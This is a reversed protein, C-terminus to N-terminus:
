FVDMVAIQGGFVEGLGAPKFIGRISFDKRGQSTFLPLKDGEKLNHKDAFTRSILISDPQALAVLPDGIESGSEDFQYERLEGDGLMDVGVILLNGEDEFATHAVVEIAPEAIKVGPTEKVIEWVAEPFGSEGGSVQLTTKGAVKEITTTFSNLLTVNATRVAFFVAVGLAIGLLTLLTRLRHRQWQKWTVLALASIMAGGGIFHEAFGARAGRQGRRRRAVARRAVM